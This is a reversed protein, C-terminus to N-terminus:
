LDEEILDEEVSAIHACLPPLSGTIVREYELRQVLATDIRGAAGVAIDMATQITLEREARATAIAEISQIIDAANEAAGLEVDLPTDFAAAFRQLALELNNDNRNTSMPPRLACIARGM